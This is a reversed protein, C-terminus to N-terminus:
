FNHSSLFLETGKIHSTCTISLSLVYYFGARTVNYQSYDQDLGYISPFLLFYKKGNPQLDKIVVLGHMHLDIRCMFLIFLLAMFIVVTLRNVSTCELGSCQKVDTERSKKVANRAFM